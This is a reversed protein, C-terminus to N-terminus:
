KKRRMDLMDRSRWGAISREFQFNGKANPAHDGRGPSEGTRNGEGGRGGSGGGEAVAAPAQAGEPGIDAEERTGDLNRPGFQRLLVQHGRRRRIPTRSGRAPPDSGARSDREKEAPIWALEEQLRGRIDARHRTEDGDARGPRAGNPDGATEEDRGAESHIPTAGAAASVSGDQSTATDRASVVGRGGARDDGPEGRRHRCGRSQEQGAEM